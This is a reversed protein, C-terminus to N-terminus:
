AVKVSSVSAAEPDTECMVRNRGYRKAAYLANDAREILSSGTDEKRLTAAIERAKTVDFYNNEIMTAAENVVDRPAAFVAPAILLSLILARLRM